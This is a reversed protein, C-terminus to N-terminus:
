LATLADEWHASFALYDAFDFQNSSLASRQDPTLATLFRTNGRDVIDLVDRAAEIGAMPKFTGPALEGNVIGSTVRQEIAAAADQVAADLEARQHSDLAPLADRLRAVRERQPAIALEALPLMRDRYDRLKEGHQPLFHALWEPVAVGFARYHQKPLERVHEVRTGARAFSDRLAATAECAGASRDGDAITQSSATVTHSGCGRWSQYGCVVALAIAVNRWSVMTM